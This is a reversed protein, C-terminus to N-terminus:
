VKPSEIPNLKMWPRRPKGDRSKGGVSKENAAAVRHTAKTERFKTHQVAILESFVSSSSFLFIHDGFQQSPHRPATRLATDWPVNTKCDEVEPHWTSETVPLWGRLESTVNCNWGRRPVPLLFFTYDARWIGGGGGEKGRAHTGQVGFGEKNETHPKNWGNGFKVMGASLSSYAYSVSFKNGLHGERFFTKRKQWWKNQKMIFLASIFLVADRQLRKLHASFKEFINANSAIKDKWYAMRFIKM